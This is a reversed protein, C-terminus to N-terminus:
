LPESLKSYVYSYMHSHSPRLWRMNIIIITKMRAHSRSTRQADAPTYEKRLSLSTYKQEVVVVLVDLCMNFTYMYSVHPFIYATKISSEQSLNQNMAILKLARYANVNM